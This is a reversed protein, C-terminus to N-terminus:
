LPEFLFLDAKEPAQEPDSGACNEQPPMQTQLEISISDHVSEELLMM